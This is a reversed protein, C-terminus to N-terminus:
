ILGLRSILCCQVFNREQRGLLPDMLKIELWLKSKKTPMARWTQALPIILVGALESADSRILSITQPM